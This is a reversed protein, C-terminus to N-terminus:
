FTEEKPTQNNTSSINDERQDSVFVKRVEFSIQRVTKVTGDPGYVKAQQCISNFLADDSFDTRSLTVSPNEIVGTEVATTEISRVYMEDVANLIVDKEALEHQIQLFRLKKMREPSFVAAIRKEDNEGQYFKKVM